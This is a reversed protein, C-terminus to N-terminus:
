CEKNLVIENLDVYTCKNNLEDISDRAVSTGNYEVSGQKILKRLLKDVYQKNTYVGVLRFSSYEKWENCTNVVITIM